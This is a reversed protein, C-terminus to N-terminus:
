AIKRSMSTSVGAVRGTKRAIVQVTVQKGRDAAVPTYTKATRGAIPVGNRLWKYLYSTPTPTWTGVKATLTSGVRATGTFSARTLNTVRPVSGPNFIKVTYSHSIKTTSGNRRINSVKVSYSAVAKGSPLRVGSVQFVITNNGYGVAVPQKKATLATGAANKVSVTAASFNLESDTASLSWRGGPELGAPFYGGNPWAVYAPTGAPRTWNNGIVWLANARSTSGSGMEKTPPFMIWRRHGVVNNNSGPDEMYGTIAKAGAIGLSLNSKGAAQAGTSSYCKWSSSPAHSLANNAQMILAARQAKASLSNDLRVPRLGGIGRYFNIASKTAYRQAASTTGAKCGSVAGSWSIPVKHAPVLVNLYSNAVSVKSSTDLASAAPAQLVALGLGVATVLGTTATRTLASRRRMPM